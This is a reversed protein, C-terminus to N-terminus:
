RARSRRSAMASSGCCTTRRWWSTPTPISVAWRCACRRWMRAAAGPAAVVQMAAKIANGFATESFRTKFDFKGGKPRLGDAAKVIDAEVKLVHALTANGTANSPMALRAENLFADPSALAVARAGGDLPGLDASGIIVGDAGFSAPVPRAAFARTLWGEHLYQDARSATDWIEISRFHSLNPQPYSLGQVVSLEGAQWLPMLPQLSPHLGYRDDLQLM